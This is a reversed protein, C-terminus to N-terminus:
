GGFNSMLLLPWRKCIMDFYGSRKAPCVFSPFRNKARWTTLCFCWRSRRYWWFLILFLFFNAFLELKPTFSTRCGVSSTRSRTFVCKREFVIINVASFINLRQVFVAVWLKLYINAKWEVSVCEQAFISVRNVGASYFLSFKSWSSDHLRFGRSRIQPLYQSEM